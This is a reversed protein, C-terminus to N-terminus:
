KRLTKQLKYKNGNYKIKSSYFKFYKVAKNIREFENQIIEKEKDEDIVENMSDDPMWKYHIFANRLESLVKITQLHKKNFTKFNFITMLWTFKGILNTNRIIENETKKNINNRKCYTSILGNIGHEFYTSYFIRSYEFKELFYFLKAQKLVSDTHDVVFNFETKKIM